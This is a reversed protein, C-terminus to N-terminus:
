FPMGFGIVAGRLPLKNQWVWKYGDIFIPAYLVYGYDFRIVLLGLDYRVGAGATLYSDQFIKNWRIESYPRYPDPKLLWINGVDSWLAVNLRPGLKKRYELNWELKVDGVQNVEGENLEIYRGPGVSRANIPRLSNAGGIFFQKIYPLQSSNGYAIGLGGIHRFALQSNAGLRLYSRFDYSGQVLQSVPVGFPEKVGTEENVRSILALINGDLEIKGEFYVGLQKEELNSNDYKYVYNSGLIFQDTLSAALSPDDATLSDFKVTPNVINSFTAEAITLKHTTRQSTKWIVGTSGTWSTLHFYDKRDNVEARLAIFKKPISFEKNIFKFPPSVLPATLTTNVSFGSSNSIREKFVGIPLDYYADLDVTLNEAGGFINLQSFSVGVSPGIYGINKYNAKANFGFSTADLMQTNLVSNLKLSDDPHVSFSIIPNAFIGVESLNKISRTVNSFCYFEGPHVMVLSDLLKRKLKGAPFRYYKSGSSEQIVSDIILTNQFITQRKYYVEPLTQSVSIRVDLQKEGVSTDAMFDLHEARLFYFGNDHFYNLYNAKERKIQDLDFNSGSKLLSNKRFETITESFSQNLSDTIFNIKRYVYAKPILFQYYIRAKPKRKGYKVQYTGTTGFHGWNEYLNVIKDTKLQPNIKSITVPPEGFNNAMWYSFSKEKETYFWNYMILRFPISRFHPIGFSGNPLDWLNYYAISRKRGGQYIKWNTDAEMKTFKMQRTGVYLYEGEPLHKTGSCSVLFFLTVLLLARMIM